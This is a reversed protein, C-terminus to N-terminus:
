LHKEIEKTIDSLMDWTSDPLSQGEYYSLDFALCEHILEWQERSFYIALGHQDEIFPM